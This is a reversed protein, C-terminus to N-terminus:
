TVCLPRLPSRTHCAPTNPAAAARVKSSTSRMCLVGGPATAISGDSSVALPQMPRICISHFSGSMMSMLVCPPAPDPLSHWCAAAGQAFVCRVLGLLCCLTAPAPPLQSIYFIDGVEEAVDYSRWPAMVTAAEGGAHPALSVDFVEVRLEARLSALLLGRRQPHFALDTVTKSGTQACAIPENPMAVDWVKVTGDDSCSALWRPQM